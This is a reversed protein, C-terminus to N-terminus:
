VDASLGSGPGPLDARYTRDVQHLTFGLSRYLALAPTNDGDVYLMGTTLGRGALHDLGAWALARGLGRGQFEPDVGIVYIEGLPPHAAAHVKTWCWAAVRGDLEHLLFGAPDFWPERERTLLTERDWGGQDPHGAFARNNAVLWATEDQGPRFARVSVV